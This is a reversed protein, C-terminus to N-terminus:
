IITFNGLISWGATLTVKLDVSTATLNQLQGLAVTGSGSTGTAAILNFQDVHPVPNYPATGSLANVSSILICSSSQALVGNIPYITGGTKVTSTTDPQFYWASHLIANGVVYGYITASSASPPDVANQVFGNFLVMTPNRSTFNFTYIDNRIFFVKGTASVVPTINSQSIKLNDNGNHQHPPVQPNGSRYNNNMEDKILNRLQQETWTSQGFGVNNNMQFDSQKRTRGFFDNPNTDTSSRNTFANQDAM